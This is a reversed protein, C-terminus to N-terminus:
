SDRLANRVSVHLRTGAPVRILPGPNQARKGVESFMQLMIPPGDDGDPYWLGDRAELHLTLEGNRLVGAATRNDNIAVREPAHTRASCGTLLLSSFAIGARVNRMM